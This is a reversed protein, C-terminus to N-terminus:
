KMASVIPKTELPAKLLMQIADQYSIPGITEFQTASINAHLKMTKVMLARVSVDQTFHTFIWRQGGANTQELVLKGGPYIHALMGWGFNVPQFISGEMRVLQRTKSDIWMRGELGTLAEATTSPPHFKPNPKYDLVVEPAGGQRGTQPQGPVYSYIMADPMLKVMEVALKKGSADNKIHRAFTSPSAVMGNLREREAEDEDPTLPRGNRAVLRAVAGDRSEIVDRTQDGKEDIVHMTYRLYSGPHDIALIENAATQVAWDRPAIARLWEPVGAEDGGDHVADASAQQLAPLKGSGALLLGALGATALGRSWM